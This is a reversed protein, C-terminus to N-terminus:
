QYINAPQAKRPHPPNLLPLTIPTRTHKAMERVRAEDFIGAKTSTGIFMHANVEQFIEASEWDKAEM